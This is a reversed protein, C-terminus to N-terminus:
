ALREVAGKMDFFDNNGGWIGLVVHKREDPQEGAATDNPIYVNAVEFQRGEENGRRINRVANGLMSPALFTRMLSLEESIPNLIKVANREVGDEAIKMLDIDNHSYFSYNYAESFGPVRLVNKLHAERKQEDILGGGTVSAKELFTPTIHEYGYMRIIEEALDPAGDVDDRYGPVTVTLTDGDIVPNFQM